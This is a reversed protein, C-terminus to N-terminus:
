VLLKNNNMPRHQPPPPLRRQHVLGKHMLICLPEKTLQEPHTRTPKAHALAEGVSVQVTVAEGEEGVEDESIEPLGAYLM